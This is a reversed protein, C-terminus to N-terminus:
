VKLTKCREILKMFLGGQVTRNLFHIYCSSKTDYWDTLPVRSPSENYAKWLPDIFREFDEKTEAMTAVWVLWDSKTYEARSDLPPGYENFQHFYSQVESEMVESPFLETGWLKDWVMNYKLSFSGAQDFALKYSGDGNSARCVWGNAMDRAIKDYRAIDEKKGLMNALISMGEIGCIAKLSLNCNHALHGAFDDTCLQNEPDAGYKILYEAWAKLQEYHEKASSLDKGALALCTEMIIMNGSEEVPMQKDFLLEGSEEELGYIQGTVLPYLGADHPAFNYKWAGKKEAFKYIPRMMARILEPNYRLFMPISPYSVDVTAACGCSGCEKSIFLAEGDEDAVLKHASVVQRYSLSLIEAYKKGGANEAEAYLEEAFRDCKECLSDFDKSAEVIAQEITKGNRAWYGKVKEGFYDLSFIDDYAFLVLEEKKEEMPLSVRICTGTTGGEDTKVTTKENKAMLYAYGWEIRILDGKHCLPTQEKAGIRMGRIDGLSVEEVEVPKQRVDNLCLSEGLAVYLRVAHCGGDMSEYSVSMYSVPRSTVDFDELLLPTMWRVRLRIGAGEFVAKTSLADISLSTQKLKLADRDYGLFAYRKGDIEVTAFIYNVAGTWHVLDEYALKCNKAWVSFYPDVTIIPVAPARLTFDSM